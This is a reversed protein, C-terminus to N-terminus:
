EPRVRKSIRARIFEGWEGRTVTYGRHEYFAALRDVDDVKSVEGTIIEAGLEHALEEVLALLATGHGEGKVPCRMDVVHLERGDRVLNAYARDPPTVLNGDAGRWSHTLGVNLVDNKRPSPRIALVGQETPRRETTTGPDEDHVTDLMARMAEQGADLDVGPFRERLEDTDGIVIRPALWEEVTQAPGNRHAFFKGWEATLLRITDQVDVTPVGTTIERIRRRGWGILAEPGLEILRAHEACAGWVNTSSEGFPRIPYAIDAEPGEPICFDCTPRSAPTM